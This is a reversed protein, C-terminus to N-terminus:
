LWFYYRLLTGFQYNLFAVNGTAQVNPNPLWSKGLRLDVLPFFTELAYVVANFPPYHEPLQGARFRNCATEETPTIVGHCYGWNFIVSGLIVFSLIWWFVRLPEYGYEITSRLITKQIGSPRLSDEKAILVKIADDEQGSQRLVTALEQFPQPGYGERQL